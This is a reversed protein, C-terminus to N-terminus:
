QIYPWVTESSSVSCLPITPEFVIFIALVKETSLNPLLDKLPRSMTLPAPNRLYLFENFVRSKKPKKNLAFSTKVKPNHTLHSTAASFPMRWEM